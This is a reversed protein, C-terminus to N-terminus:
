LGGFIMFGWIAPHNPGPHSRLRGAHELVDRPVEPLQTVFRGDAHSPITLFAGIFISLIHFFPTVMMIPPLYSVM